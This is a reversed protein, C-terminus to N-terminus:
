RANLARALPLDPDALALLPRIAAEREAAQDERGLARYLRALAAQARIWSMGGSAGLFEYVLPRMPVTAELVELARDSRGSQLYVDAIREAVLCTREQGSLRLRAWAQELHAAATAWDGRAVAMEGDAVALTTLNNGFRRRFDEIWAHADALRGTRPGWMVRQYSPADNSRVDQFLHSEFASPDDCQMASFAVAEHRYEVGMREYAARADRCRGLALYMNGVRHAYQELEDGSMQPLRAALANVIAHTRPIDGRVWAVHADYLDIWSRWQAVLPVGAGVLTAAREVFPTAADLDGKWAVLARAAALQSRVDNPRDSGRKVALPVAEDFRGLLEYQNTLNNAAWYHNPDLQLLAEYAIASQEILERFRAPRARSEFSLYSGEIFYREVESVTGAIARARAAQELVLPVPHGTNAMAHALLIHASAFEPDRVIAAELLKAAPEWKTFHLGLDMASSYLQLAELSTTTAQELQRPASLEHMREGLTQRVWQAQAAVSELVQDQRDVTRRDVAVTRGDVTSVLELGLAYRDSLKDIRGAVLVRIAGDRLSIERGIPVDVPTDLPRRMLALADRVRDPSAVRVFSSASLHQRLVYELTGTFVPEGTHNEFATVLVWDHAGFALPPATAQPGSRVLPWVVLACIAAAVLSGAVAMRRSSHSWPEASPLAPTASANVIPEAGAANGSAGNSAGKPRNHWWADLESKFAYATSLRSHRHRHVPLGQTQEWRQVTRVDRGLYAAIEKWSGLRDDSRTSRDSDPAPNPLSEM